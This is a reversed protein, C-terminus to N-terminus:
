TKYLGKAGTVERDDYDQGVPVKLFQGKARIRFFEDEREAARKRASRDAMKNFTTPSQYALAWYGEVLTTQKSRYNNKQTSTKGPFVNHSSDGSKVWSLIELRAAKM